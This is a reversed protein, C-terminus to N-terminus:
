FEPLAGFSPEPRGCNILLVSQRIHANSTEVATIGIDILRQINELSEPLVHANFM